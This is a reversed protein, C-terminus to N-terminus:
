QKFLIHYKENKIEIEKVQITSSLSLLYKMWNSYSQNNPVCLPRPCLLIAFPKDNKIASIIVDEATHCIFLGILIDFREVDTEKSFEEKIVDQEICTAYSHPDIITSSCKYKRQMYDRLIGNDGGIEFVKLSNLIFTSNLFDAFSIAFSLTYDDEEDYDM